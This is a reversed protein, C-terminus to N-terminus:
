GTELCHPGQLFCATKFRNQKKENPNKFDKNFKNCYQKQKMSQYKKKPPNHPIHSRLERILFWFQMGANSPATKVVPGGLFNWAPQKLNGRKM